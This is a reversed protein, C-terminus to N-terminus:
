ADMVNDVIIIIHNGSPQQEWYSKHEVYGAGDDDIVFGDDGNGDFDMYNYNTRETTNTITNKIDDYNFSKREGEDEKENDSDEFINSIDGLNKEIKM